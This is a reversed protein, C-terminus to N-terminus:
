KSRATKVMVSFLSSRLLFQGRSGVVTWGRERAFKLTQSDDDSFVEYHKIIEFNSRTLTTM